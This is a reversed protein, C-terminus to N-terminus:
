QGVPRDHDGNRDLRGENGRRLDVLRRRLEEIDRARGEEVWAPNPQRSAARIQQYESEIRPRHEEIYDLAVRVQRETIGLEEAIEAPTGGYQESDLIRYVTIRTGEIEPGRGRDIIRDRGAKIPRPM